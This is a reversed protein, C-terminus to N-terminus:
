RLRGEKKEKYLGTLRIDVQGVSAGAIKMAGSVIETRAREAREYLTGGMAAVVDPNRAAETLSPVDLAVAVTVGLQGQDDHIWARVESAPVGFAAATIAEVTHHLAASTIRTHGDRRVAALGAPATDPRAITGTSM